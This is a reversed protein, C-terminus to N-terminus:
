MVLKCLMKVDENMVTSRHPLNEKERVGGFLQIFGLSFSGGPMVGPMVGPM